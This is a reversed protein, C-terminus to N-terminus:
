EFAPIATPATRRLGTEPWELSFDRFNAFFWGRNCRSMPYAQVPREFPAHNAHMDASPVCGKVLLGGPETGKDIASM